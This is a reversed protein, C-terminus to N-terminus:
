FNYRATVGAWRPKGYAQQNLGFSSTFDFTYVLYEEDFVNDVFATLIYHQEPSSWELRVNTVSYGEEKATDQNQIDFYTEGQYSYSVVGAMTGEFMGWEYRAAANVSWDPASVATRDRGVGTYDPVNEV